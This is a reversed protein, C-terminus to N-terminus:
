VFGYYKGTNHQHTVTQWVTVWNDLQVIERGDRAAQAAINMMNTLGQADLRILKLLERASKGDYLDEVTLNPEDGGSEELSKIIDKLSMDPEFIYEGVAGALAFRTMDFPKEKDNSVITEIEYSEDLDFDVYESEPSSDIVEGIVKLSGDACDYVEGGEQMTTVISGDQLGAMVKDATYDKDHIVIDQNTYGSMGFCIKMHLEKM